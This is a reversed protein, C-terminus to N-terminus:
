YNRHRDVFVNDQAAIDAEWAPEWQTHTIHKYSPTGCSPMM